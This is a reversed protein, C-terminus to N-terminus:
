PKTGTRNPKVRVFPMQGRPHKALAFAIPALLQEAHAKTIRPRRPPRVLVDEVVGFARSARLQIALLEAWAVFVDIERVIAAALFGGADVDLADPQLAPFTKSVRGAIERAVHAALDQELAAQPRSQGRFVPADGGDGFLLWDLSVMTADGIRRLAIAGLLNKGSLWESIQSSRLGCEAAFAADTGPRSRILKRLRGRM